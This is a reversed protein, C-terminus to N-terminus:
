LDNRLPEFAEFLPAADIPLLMGVVDANRVSRVNRVLRLPGRVGKISARVDQSRETLRTLRNLPM